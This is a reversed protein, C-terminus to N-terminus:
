AKVDARPGLIKAKWEEVIKAGTEPDGACRFGGEWQWASHEISTVAFFADKIDLTSIEEVTQGIRGETAVKSRPKALFEQVAPEKWLQYIDTRHWEDRSRNFDPVHVFALTDKPLLAAVARSSPRHTRYFGWWIGGAAVAAALIVLQIKRM